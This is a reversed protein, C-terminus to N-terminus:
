PVGSGRWTIPRREPTMATISSFTTPCSTSVHSCVTAPYTTVNGMGASSARTSGKRAANRARLTQAKTMAVRSATAARLIGYASGLFPVLVTGESQQDEGTQDRGKESGQAVAIPQPDTSEQGRALLGPHLDAFQLLLQLPLPEDVGALPRPPQVRGHGEVRRSRSHTPSQDGFAGRGPSSSWIVDLLMRRLGMPPRRLRRSKTM